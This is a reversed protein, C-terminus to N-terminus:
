NCPELGTITGGSFFAEKVIQTVLDLDRNIVGLCDTFDTWDTTAAQACETNGVNCPLDDLCGNMVTGFHIEQVQALMEHGASAQHTSLVSNFFNPM